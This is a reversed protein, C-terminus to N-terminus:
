DNNESELEKIFLIDEMLKFKIFDLDNTIKYNYLFNLLSFYDKKDLKINDVCVIEICKFILDSLTFDEITKINRNQIYEM